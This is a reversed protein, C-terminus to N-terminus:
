TRPPWAPARSGSTAAAPRSRCSTSAPPRSTWPAARHQLLRRDHGDLRGREGLRRWQVLGPYMRVATGDNGSAAVTLIGADRAATFTPQALEVQEPTLTGGLSLNIVDAGHERAWDVADLVDSLAIFGDSDAVKIPMLTSGPAIGAMGLGNNTEAVITGTVHTGHGDDDTVDANNWVM